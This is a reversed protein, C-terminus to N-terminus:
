IIFKGILSRAVMRQRDKTYHLYINSTTEIDAHGLWNKVDELSWGMDFLISATSHRIDHFRMPPLNCRKLARQFGRTLSDPRLPVGAADTCIYENLRSLTLLHEKIEPLLEFRRFSTATKTNDEYTITLNKVVTHSITLTNSDFDVASWRLGLIESRRLGYFLALVVATYYPSGKLVSLMAQAEEVHLFVMREAACNKRRALKVSLAPNVKLFGLAVAENLAQKILSLHKRVSVPSLGGKKDARGSTLKVDIYTRIDFPTIEELEKDKFYPIIHKNFYVTLAEYTSQRVNLKQWSLWQEFYMKAQM